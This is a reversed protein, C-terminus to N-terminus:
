IPIPTWHKVDETTYTTGDDSLWNWGMGEGHYIRKAIMRLSSGFTKPDLLVLVRLELPPLLVDKNRDWQYTPNWAVIHPRIDDLNMVKPEQKPEPKAPQVEQVQPDPRSGRLKISAMLEAAFLSADRKSKSHYLVEGDRFGVVYASVNGNYGFYIKECLQQPTLPNSTNSVDGSHPYQHRIDLSILFLFGQPLM